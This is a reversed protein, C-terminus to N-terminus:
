NWSREGGPPNLFKIIESVAEGINLVGTPVAFGKERLLQMIEIVQPPELGIQQLRDIRSLVERAPGDDIIKGQDMTIIRDVLRAVDDMSHSILIM